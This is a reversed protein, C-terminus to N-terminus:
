ANSNQEKSLTTIDLVHNAKNSTNNIKSIINKTLSDQKNVHQQNESISDKVNNFIELTDSASTNLTNTYWTM